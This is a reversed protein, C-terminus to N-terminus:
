GRGAWQGNYIHGRVWGVVGCPRKQFEDHSMPSLSYFIVVEDLVRRAVYSSGHYLGKWVCM